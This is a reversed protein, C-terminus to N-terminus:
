NSHHEDEKKEKRREAARRDRERRYELQKEGSRRDVETRVYNPIDWDHPIDKSCDWRNIFDDWYNNSDSDNRREKLLKLLKESITEMKILYCEKRQVKKNKELPSTYYLYIGIM